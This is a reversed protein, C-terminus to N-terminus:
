KVVRLAFRLEQAVNNREELFEDVQARTYRGSDLAQQYRAEFVTEMHTIEFDVGLYTALPTNTAGMEKWRQCNSRSFLNLVDLTIPRVHTPDGIFYDHRPHPVAVQVTANPACVRYLEKMFELFEAPGPGIHELVHHAIVEDVSDREFPWTRTLDTRVDPDGDIDVNVYGAIKNQGCGLNLKLV